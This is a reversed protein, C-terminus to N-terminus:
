LGEWGPGVSGERPPAPRGRSGPGIARRCSREMVNRNGRRRPEEEALRLPMMMLMWGDGPGICALLGATDCWAGGEEEFGGCFRLPLLWSPSHLLAPVHYAHPKKKRGRGEKDSTRGKEGGREKETRPLPAPPPRRELGGDRERSPKERPDAPPAAFALLPVAADAKTLPAQPAPPAAANAPPERLLGPISGRGWMERNNLGHNTQQLTVPRTLDAKVPQPLNSASSSPPSQSSLVISLPGDGKDHTM